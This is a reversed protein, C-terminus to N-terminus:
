RPWSRRFRAGASMDRRYPGLFRLRNYDLELSLPAVTAVLAGVWGLRVSREGDGDVAFEWYRAVVRDGARLSGAVSCTDHQRVVREARQLGSALM